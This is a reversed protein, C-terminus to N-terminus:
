RKVVRKSYRADFRIKWTKGGDLSYDWVHSPGSRGAKWVTRELAHEGTPTVREALMLMAGDRFGGRMHLVNGWSDFWSHHWQRIRADYASYSSGTQDDEASTWQEIIVCGGYGRTILNHGLLKGSPDRVEWDGVFFDFQRYLADTCRSLPASPEAGSRTPSAALTAIATVVIALHRTM